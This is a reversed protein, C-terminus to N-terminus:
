TRPADFHGDAYKFGTSAPDAGSLNYGKSAEIGLGLL